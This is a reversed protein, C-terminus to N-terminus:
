ALYWGLCFLVAVETEFFGAVSEIAFVFAFIQKRRYKYGRRRRKFNRKRIKNMYGPRLICRISLFPAQMTRRLKALLLMRLILSSVRGPVYLNASSQM